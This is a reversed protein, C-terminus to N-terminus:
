VIDNSNLAEIAALLHKTEIEPIDAGIIVVKRSSFLVSHKDDFSFTFNAERCNFSSKL